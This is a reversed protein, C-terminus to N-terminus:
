LIDELGLSQLHEARIIARRIRTEAREIIEDSWDFSIEQCVQDKTTHLHLINKIDQVKRKEDLARMKQENPLMELLDDKKTPLSPNKKLIERIQAPLKEGTDRYHVYQYLDM